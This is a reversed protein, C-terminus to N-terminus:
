FLPKLNFTEKFEDVDLDLQKCYKEVQEFFDFNEDVPRDRNEAYFTILDYLEQFAQVNTIKEM